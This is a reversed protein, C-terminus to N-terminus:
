KEVPLPLARSLFPEYDAEALKGDYRLTRRIADISESRPIELDREASGIISNILTLAHKPHHRVIWDLMRGVPPPIYVEPDVQSRNLTAARERDDRFSSLVAVGVTDRLAEVSVIDNISGAVVSALEEARQRAASEDGIRWLKAFPGSWLHTFFRSKFRQHVELAGVSLESTGALAAAVADPHRNRSEVWDAAVPRSWVKRGGISAQPAPVETQGRAVYARLTSAALGAMAALEPTGILLSGSLEPATIDVVCHALPRDDKSRQGTWLRLHDIWHPVEMNVPEGGAAVSLVDNITLIAAHGPTGDSASLTDAATVTSAAPAKRATFRHAAYDFVQLPRHWAHGDWWYGGARFLLPGDDTSWHDHMTWADDTRVLLVSRGHTPHYRVCWALQTAIPDTTFALWGGESATDRRSHRDHDEGRGLAEIARPDDVPIHSDDVFALGPMPHDTSTGNAVVPVTGTLM